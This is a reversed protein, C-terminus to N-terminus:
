IWIRIRFGEGDSEIKVGHRRTSRTADRQGVPRWRRSVLLFTVLAALVPVAGPTGSGTGSLRCTCGQPEVCGTGVCAPAEAGADPLPAADPGTPTLGPACQGYSQCLWVESPLCRAKVCSRAGSIDALRTHPTWTQGEDESVGIMFDDGISEGAGCAYLKGESAVLCRYRPGRPGSALPPPWSAGGDRSIYLRGAPKGPDSFLDAGGVYLVQSTAGFALGGFADGQSLYLMPSVSQGGDSSKWLQDGRPDRVTFFLQAPDDPAVAVLELATRPPTSARSALDFSSFSRGGDTSVATPTVNDRGRGVLYLRQGDSPAVALWQFAQADTFTMVRTFSTGGDDSRYLERPLNALAWVRTTTVPDFAVDFVIKGAIDGTAQGWECGDTSRWLGTNSAAFMGGNPARRVQGAPAVAYNDDCVLQWDGAAGPYLLGFNTLVIHPTGALFGAPEPTDCPGNLASACRNAGRAAGPSATSVSLGALAVLALRTTTVRRPGTSLFAM